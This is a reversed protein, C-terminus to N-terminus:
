ASPTAGEAPPVVEVLQAAARARLADVEAPDAKSMVASEIESLTAILADTADPDLQALDAENEAVTAHIRAVNSVSGEYESPSIVKGGSVGQPYEDGLLELGNAVPALEGRLDGLADSFSPQDASSSGLLYGGALGIALAVALALLGQRRGKGAERYLSM